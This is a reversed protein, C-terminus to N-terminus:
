RSVCQSFIALIVITPLTSTLNAVCRLYPVMYFRTAVIVVIVNNINHLQIM